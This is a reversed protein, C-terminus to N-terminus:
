VVANERQVFVNAGQQLKQPIRTQLPLIGLSRDAGPRIYARHKKTKTEACIRVNPADKAPCIRHAKKYAQVEKSIM